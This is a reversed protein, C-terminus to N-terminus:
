RAQATMAVYQIYINQLNSLANVGCGVHVVHM